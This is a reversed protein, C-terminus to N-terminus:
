QQTTPPQARNMDQISTFWAQCAQQHTEALLNLVFVNYACFLWVYYILAARHSGKNLDHM